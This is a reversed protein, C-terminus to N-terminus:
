FETPSTCTIGNPQSIYYRLRYRVAVGSEHWWHVGTSLNPPAGPAPGTIRAGRSAYLPFGFIYGIVVTDSVANAPGAIVNGSSDVLEVETGTVACAPNMTSAPNGATEDGKGGVIFAWHVTTSSVRQVPTSGVPTICDVAGPPLAEVVNTYFAPRRGFINFWSVAHAKATTGIPPPTVGAAPFPSFAIGWLGLFSVAAPEGTSPSLDAMLQGSPTALPAQVNAVPCGSATTEGSGFFTDTGTFGLTPEAWGTTLNPSLGVLGFALPVQDVDSQVFPAGGATGGRVLLTQAMDRTAIAADILRSWPTLRTTMTLFALTAVKARGIGPIPPAPATGGPSGALLVHARNAIGSNTHVFGSDCSWPLLNCGSGPLSRSVYAAMRNPHPIAVGGVTSTFNGPVAMDRIAGTGVAPGGATSPEGVLWASTAGPSVADPFILNGFLDAYSENLAGSEDLYVLGSSHAIVGHTFEHGVVDPQSGVGLCFFAEGTLFSDFFANACGSSIAVNTNATLGSGSGNVGLWDLGAYFAAVSRMSSLIPTVDANLPLAGTPLAGVQVTVYSLRGFESSALGDNIVPASQSQRTSYSLLEGGTAADVFYVFEDLRVEYALRTALDRRPVLPGPFVVLEATAPASAVASLAEGAYPWPAFSQLADTAAQRAASVAAAEGLKPWPSVEISPLVHGSVTMVKSRDHIEFVLEAGSVPLGAYRQEMRVFQVGPLLPSEAVARPRLQCRPAGTRFLSPHEQLFRYVTEFPSRDLPLTAVELGGIAHYSIADTLGTRPDTHYSPEAVTLKPEFGAPSPSTFVESVGGQVGVLVSKNAPPGEAPEERWFLQVAQRLYARGEEREPVLVRRSKELVEEFVEAPVIEKLREYSGGGEVAPQIERPASAVANSVSVISGAADFLVTVKGGLVPTGEVTRELVVTGVSQCGPESESVVYDAPDVVPDLLGQYTGIFDVAAKRSEEGSGAGVPVEADLLVISLSERDVVLDVPRRSQEQLARLLERRKSDLLRQALAGTAFQPRFRPSAKKERGDAPYLSEPAVRAQARVSEALPATAMALAVGLGVVARPWRGRSTWDQFSPSM